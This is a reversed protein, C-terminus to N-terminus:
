VLVVLQKYCVESIKQLAFAKIRHDMLDGDYIQKQILLNVFNVFIIHVMAVFDLVGFKYLGTLFILFIKSDSLSCVLLLSCIIKGGQNSKALYCIQM